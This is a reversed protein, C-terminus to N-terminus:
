RATPKLRERLRSCDGMPNKETNEDNLVSITFELKLNFKVCIQRFGFGKKM